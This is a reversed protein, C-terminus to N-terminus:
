HQSLRIQKSAGLRQSSVNIAWFIPILQGLHSLLGALYSFAIGTFFTKRISSPAQANKPQSVRTSLLIGSKGCNKCRFHQDNPPVFFTLEIDKSGCETCEHLPEPMM